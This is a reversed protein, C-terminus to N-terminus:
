VAAESHSINALKCVRIFNNWECMLLFIQNPDDEDPYSLLVDYGLVDVRDFGQETWVDRVYEALTLDGAM